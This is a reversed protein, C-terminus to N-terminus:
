EGMGLHANRKDEYHFYHSKMHIITDYYKYVKSEWKRNKSTIYKELVGKPNKYRNSAPDIEYLICKLSRAQKKLKCVAAVAESPNEVAIVARYQHM